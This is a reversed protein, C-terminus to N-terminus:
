PKGNGGLHNQPQDSSEGTARIAAEIVGDEIYSATVTVDSGSSADVAASYRGLFEPDRPAFASVDQLYKSDLILVRYKGLAMFRFITDSSTLRNSFCSERLTLRDDAPVLLATANNRGEELGLVKVKVSTYKMSVVISLAGPYSAGLEFGTPSLEKSGVSFGVLRGPMPFTLSYRGPKVNRLVFRGQADPDAQVEFGGALPHIRFSLAEVPTAEPPADVLQLVGALDFAHQGHAILPITGALFLASLLTRM